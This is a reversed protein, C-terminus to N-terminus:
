TETNKGNFNRTRVSISNSFNQLPFLLESKIMKYRDLLYHRETYETSNATHWVNRERENERQTDCKTYRQPGVSLYILQFKQAGAFYAAPM